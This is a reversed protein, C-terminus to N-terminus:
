QSFSANELVLRVPRDEKSYCLLNSFSDFGSSLRQVWTSHYRAIALSLVMFTAATWPGWAGIADSQGSAPLSGLLIEIAVVTLIFVAPYLIVGLLILIVYVAAVTKAILFRSDKRPYQELRFM